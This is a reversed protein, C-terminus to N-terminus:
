LGLKKNIKSATERINKWTNEIDRQIEEVTHNLNSSRLIYKNHEPIVIENEEKIELQLEEVPKIEPLPPFSM